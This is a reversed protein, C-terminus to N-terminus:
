QEYSAGQYKNIFFTEKNEISKERYKKDEDLKYTQFFQDKIKKEKKSFKSILEHTEEPSTKGENVKFWSKDAELFLNELDSRMKIIAKHKINFPFHKHFFLILTFIIFVLISYGKGQEAFAMHCISGIEALVVLIKTGTIILFGFDIHEDLYLVDDKVQGMYNFYSTRYDGNTQTTTTM